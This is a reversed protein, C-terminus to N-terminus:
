IRQHASPLVVAAHIPFPASRWPAQHMLSLNSLWSSRHSMTSLLNLPLRTPRRPSLPSPHVCKPDRLLFYIPLSSRSASSSASGTFPAFLFKRLFCPSNMVGLSFSPSSITPRLPRLRNLFISCAACLRIPARPTTKYSLSTGFTVRGQSSVARFRKPSGRSGRRSPWTM